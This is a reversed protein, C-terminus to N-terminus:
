IYRTNDLKETTELVETPKFERSLAPPTPTVSTTVEDPTRLAFIIGLNLLASIGVAIEAAYMGLTPIIIGVILGDLLTHWLVAIWLWRIQKRLFVQLVLISFAIQAVLTFAREVAGLVSAYWPASWYESIQQQALAVQDPPVLTSLDVNRLATLQFYAILVLVGLLIAEIGGHGAGLMIGKRWTRADKAWWRYTAYRACEEWLGASLGLLVANFILSWNEPPTPLIGKQFLSTLAMNFPIHGVQSLTFTAAGIWWLRWSMQFKHTLYIGLCIPMAIMLIGNLLHTLFLINFGM